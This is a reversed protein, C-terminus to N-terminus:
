LRCLTGSSIEPVSLVTNAAEKERQVSPNIAFLGDLHGWHSALKGLSRQSVRAHTFMGQSHRLNQKGGRAHSLLPTKLTAECCM